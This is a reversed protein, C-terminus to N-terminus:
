GFFAGYIELIGGLHCCWGWQTDEETTGFRRLEAPQEEKLSLGAKTKRRKPPPKTVLNHRVRTVGHVTAWRAERGMPNGLCSYQLPNDNEEGPYGGLGLISGPNGVNCASEKGM